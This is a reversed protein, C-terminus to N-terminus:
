EVAGYVGRLSNDYQPGVIVSGWFEGCGTEIYVDNLMIHRKAVSARMDIAVDVSKSWKLVSDSLGRIHAGDALVLTESMLFTSAAILNGAVAGDPRLVRGGDMWAQMAATDDHIGDGWLILSREVRVPMLVGAKVIMPAAGAALIASLFSRRQM